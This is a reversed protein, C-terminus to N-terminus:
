RYGVKPLKQRKRFVWTSGLSTPCATRGSNLYKNTAQKAPPNEAFGLKMGKLFSM